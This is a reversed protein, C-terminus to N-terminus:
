VTEVGGPADARLQAAGVTSLMEAMTAVEV